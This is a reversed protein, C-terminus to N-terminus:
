FMRQSELCVGNKYRRRFLEADSINLLPEDPHIGRLFDLTHSHSPM